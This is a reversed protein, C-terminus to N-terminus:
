ESLIQKNNYNFCLIIYALWILLNFWAHFLNECVGFNLTWSTVCVYQLDDHKHFDKDRHCLMIIYLQVCMSANTM